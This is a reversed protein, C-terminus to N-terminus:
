PTYNVATEMERMFMEIAASAQIRIISKTTEKDCPVNIFYVDSINDINIGVNGKLLEYYMNYIFTNLAALIIGSDELDIYIPLSDVITNTLMEEKIWKVTVYAVYRIDGPKEKSMYKTERLRVILPFKKTIFKTVDVSSKKMDDLDEQAANIVDVVGM